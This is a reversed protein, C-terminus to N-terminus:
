TSASRDSMAASMVAVVAPPPVEDGHIRAVWSPPRSYWSALREEGTESARRGGHVDGM